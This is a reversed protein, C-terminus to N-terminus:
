DSDPEDLAEDRVGNVLDEGDMDEDDLDERHTKTDDGVEGIADEVEEEVEDEDEDESNEEVEEEEEERDNIDAEEDGDDEVEGNKDQDEGNELRMKKAPREGDGEVEENEGNKGGEVPGDAQEKKM